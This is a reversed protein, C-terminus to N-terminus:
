LTQGLREIGGRIRRREVPSVVPNAGTVKAGTVRVKVVPNAGIVKLNRTCPNVRKRRAVLSAVPKEVMSVVKAAVLAMVVVLVNWPKTCQMRSLVVSFEIALSWLRHLLIGEMRAM